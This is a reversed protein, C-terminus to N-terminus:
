VAAPCAYRGIRNLSATYLGKPDAVPPVESVAGKLTMRLGKGNRTDIMWLGGDPGATLSTPAHQGQWPLPYQRFDGNASMRGIQGGDFWVAGDAGATVDGPALGDPYPPIPFETIAFTDVDIRGMRTLLTESFWIAGDPGVAIGEPNVHMRDRSATSLLLLVVVLM